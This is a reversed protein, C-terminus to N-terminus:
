SEDAPAPVPHPDGLAKVATKAQQISDIIPPLTTRKDYGNDGLKKVKTLASDLDHVIDEKAKKASANFRETATKTTM